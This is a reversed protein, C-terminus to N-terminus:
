FAITRDGYLLPLWGLQEVCKKHFLQESHPSQAGPIQVVHSDGGFLGAGLPPNRKDDPNCGFARTTTERPKM